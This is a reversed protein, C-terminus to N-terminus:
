ASMESFQRNQRKIRAKEAEKKLDKQWTYTPSKFLEAVCSRSAVMTEAQYIKGINDYSDAAPDDEFM